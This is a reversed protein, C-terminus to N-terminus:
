KKFEISFSHRKGFLFVIGKASFTSGDISISVEDVDNHEMLYVAVEYEEADTLSVKATAKRKTRDATAPFAHIYFHPPYLTWSWPSDENETIREYQTEDGYIDADITAEGNESIRLHFRSKKIDIKFDTKDIRFM